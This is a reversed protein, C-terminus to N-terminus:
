DCQVSNDGCLVLRDVGVRHVRHLVLSANPLQALVVDGRRPQEVPRIHVHSRHPLAPLMSTGTAIFWMAGDASLVARVVDALESASLALLRASPSPRDDSTPDNHLRSHVDTVRGFDM